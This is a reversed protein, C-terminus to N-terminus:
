IAREQIFKAEVQLGYDVIFEKDCKVCWWHLKGDADRVAPKGKGTGSLDCINVVHRCLLQRFFSM